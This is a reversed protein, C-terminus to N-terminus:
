VFATLNFTEPQKIKVSGPATVFYSIGNKAIAAAVVTTVQTLSMKATGFVKKRAAGKKMADVFATIIRKPMQEDYKSTNQKKTDASQREAHNRTWEEADAVTLPEGDFKPLDRLATRFADIGPKGEIYKLTLYDDLLDGFDEHGYLLAQVIWAAQRPDRTKAIRIPSRNNGKPSFFTDPLVNHWKPNDQIVEAWVTQPIHAQAVYGTGTVNVAGLYPSKSWQSPQNM